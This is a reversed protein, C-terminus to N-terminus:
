PHMASQWKSFAIRALLMQNNPGNLVYRVHNTSRILCCMAGFQSWPGFNRRAGATGQWIVYGHNAVSSFAASGYFSQFRMKYVCFFHRYNWWGDLDAPAVTEGCSTCYFYFEGDMVRWSDGPTHASWLRRRSSCMERKILIISEALLFRRGCVPSAFRALLEGWGRRRTLKVIACSNNDIPETTSKIEFLQANVILLCSSLAYISTLANLARMQQDYFNLDWNWYMM